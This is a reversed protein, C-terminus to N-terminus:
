ILSLLLDATEGPANVPALHNAALERYRWRPDQQLQKATQITQFGSEKGKTCFVFTRPIAEAAPNRLHLPQSFTAIPHPVMKALLWELDGKDPVRTRLYDVPVPQFGPTGAEEAEREAAHRGAVNPDADYESQGDTPVVADFYVLNALREPVRDAVGTIIMGGYSWGVLIVDRLDEFVLVNVIDTIHTELDVDLHALHVREGLGTPTPTYVDHGAARLYPTLKNWTWGGSWGGPVLVFTAMASSVQNM